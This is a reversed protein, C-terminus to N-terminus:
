RELLVKAEAARAVVLLRQAEQEAHRGGHQMPAIEDVWRAHVQLFLVSGRGRHGALKACADGCRLDQLEEKMAALDDGRRVAQVEVGIGIPEDVGPTRAAVAAEDLTEHERHRPPLKSPLSRILAISRM